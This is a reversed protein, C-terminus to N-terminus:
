MIRIFAMILYLSLTVTKVVCQWKGAYQAIGTLEKNEWKTEYSRDYNEGM